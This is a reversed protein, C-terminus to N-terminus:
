RQGQRDCAGRYIKEHYAKTHRKCVLLSMLTHETQRERFMAALVTLAFSANTICKCTMVGSQQETITVEGRPMSELLGALCRQWLM